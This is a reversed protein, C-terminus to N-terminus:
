IPRKPQWRLENGSRRRQQQQQMQRKGNGSQKQPQLQPQKHQEARMRALEPKRLQLLLRHVRKHHM